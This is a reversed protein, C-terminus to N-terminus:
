MPPLPPTERSEWDIHDLPKIRYNNDVLKRNVTVGEEPISIEMDTHTRLDALTGFGEISIVDGDALERFEDAPEENITVYPRINVKKQKIFVYFHNHNIVDELTIVAEEGPVAAEVMIEDNSQVITELSAPEGNLRIIANKGPKGPYIKERGDVYIKKSAGRLAILSRPSYGAVILVRGINVPETELLRIVKGNVTVYSFGFYKKRLSSLAIGMPTICEPGKLKKGSYLINKLSSFDRIAVRELPLNFKQAFKERLMPTKSGGGICFLASPEKKNYKLIAEIIQDTIKDIVPEIVQLIEDYSTKITNGIIDKFSYHAKEAAIQVKLNEASKFDLLFHAAIKETIEDGAMPVMAYAIISGEDTIAIDSTGAGIDVLALNLLRYEPPILAHMAAIPELTLSHLSLGIKEIVTLLSDVVANPLFTALVDTEIRRGKQSILNSIPYGDLLYQVTTYGVCYHSSEIDNNSLEDQAKKVAELELSLIEEPLIRHEPNLTKGARKQLTTLTRGAVSVSVRSLEVQLKNEIREKVQRATEAVGEINHIQGDLMNREPHEQVEVNLVRLNGEEPYCALGVISRTGIDLAFIIHDPNIVYPKDPM